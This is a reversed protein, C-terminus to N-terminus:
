ELRGAALVATFFCAYGIEQYGLRRFDVKGSGLRGRRWTKHLAAAFPLPAPPAVWGFIAALLVAGLAAAHYALSARRMKELAGSQAAGAAARHQLGALKVFFVPGIFYLGCLAWALWAAPALAGRAAYFVAPAGLCLVLIGATENLPSFARRTRNLHLNLALMGGAPVAFALLQWRRYVLLLPGAGVIALGAFAAFWALAGAAPAGSALSQLPARLLFGGCAALCLLLVPPPPGGGAAALGVVLPAILVAWSGHERPM